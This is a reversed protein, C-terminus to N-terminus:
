VFKMDFCIRRLANGPDACRVHGCQAGEVRRLLQSDHGDSGSGNISEGIQDGRKQHDCLGDRSNRM